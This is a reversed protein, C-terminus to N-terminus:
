RIGMFENMNSIYAHYGFRNEVYSRLGLLEPASRPQRMIDVAESITNYRYQGPWLSRSGWFNNIVPRIGKAMAEGISYGFAEKIGASILFNKDDLWANLDDVYETLEVRVGTQEIVYTLYKEYYKQNSMSGVVSLNWPDSSTQNLEYIIKVADDLRKDNYIRNRGLVVAVEHTDMRSGQPLLTFKNIDIGCHIVKTNVNQLGFQEVAYDHIDQNIFIAGSVKSWDVGGPHGSWIDIDLPRVYFKGPTTITRTAVKANNDCTDCFYVDCWDYLAPNYGLEYTVEHGAGRWQDLLDRIFKLNNNDCVAIKM